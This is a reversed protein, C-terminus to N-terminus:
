NWMKLAVQVRGERAVPTEPVSLWQSGHDTSDPFSPPQTERWSESAKFRQRLTIHIM